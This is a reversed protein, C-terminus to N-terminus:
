RKEERRDLILIYTNNFFIKEKYLDYFAFHFTEIAQYSKQKKEKNIGEFVLGPLKWSKIPVKNRTRKSEDYLFKRLSLIHLTLPVWPFGSLITSFRSFWLFGLFTWLTVRKRRPFQIELWIKLFHPVQCSRM